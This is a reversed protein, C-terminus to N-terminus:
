QILTVRILDIKAISDDSGRKGRKSSSRSNSNLTKPSAPRLPSIQLQLETEKEFIQGFIEIIHIRAKKRLEM